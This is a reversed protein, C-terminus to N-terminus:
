MLKQGVVFIRVQDFSKVEVAFIESMGLQKEDLSPEFM